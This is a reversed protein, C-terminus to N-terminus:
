GGQKLSVIGKIFVTNNKLGFITWQEACCYVRYSPENVKWDARNIPLSNTFPTCSLDIDIAGELHELERRDEDFWKGLGNSSIFLERGHKSNKVELKSVTWNNNLIVKYEMKTPLNTTNIITSKVIIEKDDSTLEMYELGRTEINEWVMTKKM